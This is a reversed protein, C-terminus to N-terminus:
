QVQADRSIARPEYNHNTFVSQVQLERTVPPIEGLADSHTVVLGAADDQALERLISM